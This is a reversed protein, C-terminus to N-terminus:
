SSIGQTEETFVLDLNLAALRTRIAEIFADRALVKYSNAKGNKYRLCLSEADQPNYTARQVANLRHNSKVTVNLSENSGGESGVAIIGTLTAFNVGGQGGDSSGSAGTRFADKAKEQISQLSKLTEKIGVVGWSASSGKRPQLLSGKGSSPPSDEEKLLDSSPSGEGVPSAGNTMSVRRDEGPCVVLLQHLTLVFWRVCYRGGWQDSLSLLSWRNRGGRRIKLAEYVQVDGINRQIECLDAKSGKELSQVEEIFAQYRQLVALMDGGAADPALREFQPLVLSDTIDGGSKPSDEQDSDEIAFVAKSFRQLLFAAPAARSCVGPRLSLGKLSSSLSAIKLSSSRRAQQLKEALLSQLTESRSIEPHNKYFVDGRQFSSRSPAVSSDVAAGAGEAVGAVGGGTISSGSGGGAAAAIAAAANPSSDSATAPAAGAASAEANGCSDAASVDKEGVVSDANMGSSRRHLLASFLSAANAMSNAMSGSSQAYQGRSSDDRDQQQQQQEILKGEADLEPPPVKGTPGGTAAAAASNFVGRLSSGVDRSVGKTAQLAAQLTNGLQQRPGASHAVLRAATAKARAAWSQFAAAAASGAKSNRGNSEELLLYSSLQEEQLVKCFSCLLLGDLEQAEKDDQQQQQKRSCSLLLDGSVPLASRIRRNQHEHVADFTRCDLLVFETEALLRMATEELQRLLRQSGEVEQARCAKARPASGSGLKSLEGGGQLAAVPQLLGPIVLHFGPTEPTERPNCRM